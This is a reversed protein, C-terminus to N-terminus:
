CRQFRCCSAMWAQARPGCELLNTGRRTSSVSSSSSGRKPLLCNMTFRLCCRYNMLLSGGGAIRLVHASFDRYATPQGVGSRYRELYDMEQGDAQTELKQVIWKVCDHLVAVVEVIDVSYRSRRHLSRLLTRALAVLRQGEPGVGEM